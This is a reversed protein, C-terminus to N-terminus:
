LPVSIEWFTGADPGTALEAKGDLFNVREFITSIGIGEQIQKEREFGPGEDSYFLELLEGRQEISIRILSERAYKGANTLLEQVIRYLHLITESTLDPIGPSINLTIEMGLSIRFSDCLDIILEPFSLREFNARTLRHSIKRIGDGIERIRLELQEKQDKDSFETRELEGTIGLVIQGTHM